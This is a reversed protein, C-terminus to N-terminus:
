RRAAGATRGTESAYGVGGVRGLWSRLKAHARALQSKSFSASRGFIGAIEVHTLGEVDHLWVVARSDDSLQALARELDVKRWGESSGTAPISKLGRDDSGSVEVDSRRRRRLSTLAKSVAVRRIWAGFAGDGRFGRVSRVVELFTEQLVEEAEERSRCLRRALTYVPEAFADHLGELADLDGRRARAVLLEDVETFFSTGSAM